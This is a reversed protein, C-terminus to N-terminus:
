NHWKHDTKYHGCNCIGDPSRDYAPCDCVDCPGTYGTQAGRFSINSDDSYVNSESDNYRDLCNCDYVTKFILLDTKTFYGKGECYHCSPDGPVGDWENAVECSMMIFSSLFLTLISKKM